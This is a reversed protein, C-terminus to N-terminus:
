VNPSVGGNGGGNGSNGGGRGHGNNGHGNGNNGRGPGKDTGPSRTRRAATAESAITADVGNAIAVSIVTDVNVGADTAVTLINTILPSDAGLVTISTAIVTEAAESNACAVTDINVCVTDLAAAVLSEALAPNNAIATTLTTNLNNENTITAEIISQETPNKDIAHATMITSLSTFMIAALTKKNM